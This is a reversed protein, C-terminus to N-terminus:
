RERRRQAQAEARAQETAEAAARRALTTARNLESCARNMRTTTNRVIGLMRSDEGTATGGILHQVHAGLNEIQTERAQIAALLHGAQTALQEYHAPNPTAM